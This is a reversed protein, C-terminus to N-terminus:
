RKPLRARERMCALSFMWSTRKTRTRDDCGRTSERASSRPCPRSCGSARSRLEWREELRAEFGRRVRTQYRYQKSWTRKLTKLIVRAMEDSTSGIMDPVRDLLAEIRPEVDETTIEIAIDKRRWWRWDRITLSGQDASKVSQVLRRLRTASLHEGAAEFKEALLNELIQDPAGQLAQERSDQLVGM